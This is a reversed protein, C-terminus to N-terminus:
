RTYFNRKKRVLIYTVVTYILTLTGAVFSIIYSIKQLMTKRYCVIIKVYTGEVASDDEPMYVRVLSSDAKGVILEIGDELYAAYGYYYLYPIDWYEKSIDVWVEMYSDADYKVGENVIGDDATVTVCPELFEYWEMGGVPVFEYHNNHLEGTMYALDDYDREGLSDAPYYYIYTMYSFVIVVVALIVADGLRKMDIDSLVCAFALAMLGTSINYFRMSFQIMGFVPELVLWFSEWLTLLSIAISLIALVVTSYSIKKKSFIIYICAIAIVFLCATQAYGFDHNSFRVLEDPGGIAIMGTYDSSTRFVQITYQELAPIWFEATILLTVIASILIKLIKMPNKIIKKLYFISVLVCVFVMLYASITHSFIIGCYGYILAIMGTREKKKDEAELLYILGATTISVFAMAMASGFGADDFLQNAFRTSLLAMEAAIVSTMRKRTLMKAAAYTNFYMFLYCMTIYAKIATNVSFGLILFLAPVYLFFDSYFFGIGYGYGDLMSTHIKAPFIGNTIDEYLSYIRAVHTDIDAGSAYYGDMKYMNMCLLLISVIGILTVGFTKAINSSAFHNKDKTDNNSKNEKKLIKNEM